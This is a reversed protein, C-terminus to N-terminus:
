YSITSFIQLQGTVSTGVAGGKGFYNKKEHSNNCYGPVASSGALRCWNQKLIYNM